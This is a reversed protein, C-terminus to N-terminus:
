KPLGELSLLYINKIEPFDFLMAASRNKEYM